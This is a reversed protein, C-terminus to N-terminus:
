RLVGAILVFGPNVAGAKRKQPCKYIRAPQGYILCPPVPTEGYHFLWSLRMSMAWTAGKYDQLSITLPQRATQANYM